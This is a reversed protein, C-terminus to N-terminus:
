IERKAGKYGRAMVMTKVKSCGHGRMVKGGNIGLVNGSNNTKNSGIRSRGDM